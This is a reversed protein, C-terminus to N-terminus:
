RVQVTSYANRVKSLAPVSRDTRLLELELSHM